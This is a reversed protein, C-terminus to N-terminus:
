SERIQGYINSYVVSTKNGNQVEARASITATRGSTTIQVDLVSVVGPVDLIAKRLILLVTDKDKSGLITSYWPVGGPYNLFYENWEHNLTVEIRQAVEDAGNVMAFTGNEIVLDKNTLKWTTAM